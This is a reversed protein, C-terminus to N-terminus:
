YLAELQKKLRLTEKIVNERSWNISNDGFHMTDFGLVYYDEPIICIDDDILEIYHRWEDCIKCFPAGCTLGGHVSVDVDDYIKGYLSHEPPIAVYGNAEGIFGRVDSERLLLLANIHQKQPFANIFAICKRKEM